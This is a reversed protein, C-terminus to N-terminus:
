RTTHYCTAVHSLPDANPLQAIVERRRDAADALTLRELDRVVALGDRQQRWHRRISKRAEFAGAQQCRCRGQRLRERTL